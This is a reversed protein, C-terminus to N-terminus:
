LGSGVTSVRCMYILMENCIKITSIVKHRCNPNPNISQVMLSIERQNYGFDTTHLSYTLPIILTIDLDSNFDNIKMYAM